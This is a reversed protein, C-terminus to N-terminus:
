CAHSFAHRSIRRKPTFGDQCLEQKTRYHQRPDDPLWHGMRGAYGPRRPRPIAGNIASFPPIECRKRWEARAQRWRGGDAEIHAKRRLAAHSRAPLPHWVPLTRIETLATSAYRRGEWASSPHKRTRGTNSHDFDSVDSTSHTPPRSTKSQSSPHVRRWAQEVERGRDKGGLSSPLSAHVDVGGRGGQKRSARNRAAM